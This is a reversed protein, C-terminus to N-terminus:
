WHMQKLLGQLGEAAALVRAPDGEFLGSRLPAWANGEKKVQQVVDALPTERGRREKWAFRGMPGWGSGKLTFYELALLVEFLDFLREYQKGLLLLDELQPQLTKFLYESRPVTHREHSPILKFYDHLETM